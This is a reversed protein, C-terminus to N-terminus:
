SRKALASMMISARATLKHTYQIPMKALMAIPTKLTTTITITTKIIIM